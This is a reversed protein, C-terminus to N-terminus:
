KTTGKDLMAGALTALAVNQASSRDDGAPLTGVLTVVDQAGTALVVVDIGDITRRVADQAVAAHAQAGAFMGLAGLLLAHLTSFRRNQMTNQGDVTRRM